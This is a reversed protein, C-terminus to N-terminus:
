DGFSIGRGAEVMGIIGPVLDRMPPSLRVDSKVMDMDEGPFLMAVGHVPQDSATLAGATGMGECGAATLYEVVTDSKRTLTDGPYPTSPVYNPDGDALISQVYSQAAPFLRGAIDAVWFRGSTDGYYKSIQIAPGTFPGGHQSSKPSVYLTQGSSGYTGFCSWGRPALIGMHASAYYALRGASAAPALAQWPPTKPAAVPGAQGNSACGVFPVPVM